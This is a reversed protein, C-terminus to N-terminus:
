PVKKGKNVTKVTKVTPLNVSLSVQIDFANKMAVGFQNYLNLSENRCDNIVQLTIFIIFILRSCLLCVAINLKFTVMEM